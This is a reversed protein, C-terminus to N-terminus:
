LEIEVRDDSLAGTEKQAREIAGALEAITPTEFLSSGSLDVNFATRIKAMVQVAILSDGGLEFFNDRVGIPTMRLMEQWIDALIEERSNSPSELPNSLQPRPYCPTSLIEESDSPQSSLHLQQQGRTAFDITSVLIQPLSCGLVRDFVEVGESPLLWHNLESIEVKKAPSAIPKRSPPFIRKVWTELSECGQWSVVVKGIHRANAVFEFAETIATSPFIKKELPVFTDQEVRAMVEQWLQGFHPHTRDLNIAFFSLNKAFPRLGIAANNLIDRQGLELFRGYPALIRLSETLFEGGLSNLVVDVGRGDTSDMVEEAFALSRSDMVWQIGQSKLFGRKQPSGATAWIEAGVGQAIQVAAQGVGGAAAHILVKEGAKLQGLQILAYYATIFAVPLTAAEEWTLRDPKAAILEAPVTAFRNYCSVGFGMVADGVQWATVGEGVSAITGACELGFRLDGEGLGPILGLALLVEKFNVGTAKVEIEVEGPQPTPRSAPVFALTSLDGPVAIALEANEVTEVPPNAPKQSRKLTYDEIEALVNGEADMVAIDFHLIDDTSSNERAERIHSYVRAPLKGYLSLRKYFFPLYAGEYQRVLAGTANDLLAPHLGYCNLDGVFEAPLELTALGSQSGWCVEQWNQWRAGYNAMGGHNQIDIEAGSFQRDGCQSRLAALDRISATPRDLVWVEGRACEQGTGLDRVTFEWGGDRPSLVTQATVTQGEPVVLPALFYLNRFELVSSDLCHECAARVLELYATGPLTARNGIRHEDLVWDKKSSLDSEFIRREGEVRYRDLLPHSPSEEPANDESSRALYKTGEVGMGTGQWGEWDISLAFTGDKATKYHAFVDLFNNAGCYAVQGFLPHFATGSSCFIFFDLSIDSLVEELLLTGKVKPALVRMQRERDGREIAEDELVGACHIVGHITGFREIALNRVRQLSARDCVDAEALCVTGGLAEIEEIQQIQKGIREDDRWQEWQERPPLSTRGTLILTAKAERALHAALTLGIAGLGGVLWYVGQEKLRPVPNRKPLPLPEVDQVWRHINRYAVITESDPNQLEAALRDYLQQSQWNDEAPLTLDISRCRLDPFELPITRVPGLVTAKVPSLCEEGTAPQMENSFVTVLMERTRAQKGLARALHLLSYFGRDLLVDTDSFRPPTISWCHAIADPQLDRDRLQALLTEYHEQQCPDLIYTNEGARGYETGVKALIVRDGNETLKQALKVGVGCQDEFLLWCKTETATVVPPQSRKWVPAYFWDAPDLKKISTRSPASKANNEGAKSSSGRAEIWYRQREFPYTPLPIRQPLEDGYVGLWDIAVGRLWLQSLADLLVARDSQSNKPHRTSAFIGNDRDRSLHRKALQALVIGPGVELLIQEPRELLTEIGTSFRVTSRLHNAWYQPDTAEEATLWTGTVNSLLPIQPPSLTVTKFAELFPALMPEMMPSHFAHSTHLRRTKIEKAQLREELRAIAIKTGSVACVDPANHVALVLDSSVFPQLESPSLPVALMTGEPMQQMLKGRMAVVRLADEFTFVGALTAAVWEGISHGILANPQVGWSLWLQALSYEIAFLAPQAIATQQLQQGATERSATDPYLLSRLDLGLNPQLLECCRDLHTQFVPESEYLEKAMDPYQSGQGSFMFAVPCEKGQRVGTRAPPADPAALAKVAEERTQVAIARRHNFEARGVQLSYAVDALEMEPHLELYDCLNATAADLASPTKASLLLLHHTRSSQVSGRKPAQELILHANTGGFGFSSVGARCPTGNGQWQLLRDNVYFPSSAFDIEPNPTEFNLSPPLMKRDMALATKLLGAIGAATNLHGINTKVSGIACFQKKATSGRFAKTLAAIEIPDGLPTGTGHAEIYSITEPNVEAVELAEAIAKAQGEISPATYGVKAAGDNDIASGRIVAYIRDGDNLAEELRKLVVLGVGNGGVTGGAKADFARCYGDSSLAGGEQYLYGREQPVTISVGGALALDCQYDLLNQCALHVAVLSTSCASQVTLSPGTLNLKYSIKTALYDKDNAVSMEFYNQTDLPKSEALNFLLYTNLDAGAFVGIAGDFRDPVVNANELAEWACELLVRHQPDTIEAERPTFNFFPADFWEVDDLMYSAPVYDRNKLLDPEVRDALEDRSFETRGTVGDRLNQWFEELNKAKPFRGALGVIAISNLNEEM